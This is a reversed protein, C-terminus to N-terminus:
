GTRGPGVARGAIRSAMTAIEVFQDPDLAARGVFLGDVGGQELIPGASAADVSGGYIISVASGPAGLAVLEQRLGLHVGRIYEPAASRAGAGIAWVPEYAVVVRTLDRPRVAALGARVQGTVFTVAESIPGPTPEGVCLIPQMGCRLVAAVKAAIADDTEGHDRRRESHGIEVFLCGLDALMVASIDGTHAGNEAPHVDQAGWAIKSGDLADRAAWIAAFAPLFFLRVGDLLATGARVRRCWEAVETSTLNMKTSTGVLLTM